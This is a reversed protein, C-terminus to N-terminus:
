LAARLRKVPASGSGISSRIARWCRMTAGVAHPQVAHDVAVAREDDQQVAKGLEPVRQRAGSGPAPSASGRRRARGARSCRSRSARRRPATRWARAPRRRRPGSGRRRRARPPSRRVRSPRRRRRSRRWPAARRHRALEGHEVARMRRHQRLVQAPVRALERAAPVHEEELDGPQGLEQEPQAVGPRDAPRDALRRHARSAIVSSSRCRRRSAAMCEPASWLAM